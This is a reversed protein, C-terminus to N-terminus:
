QGTIGKHLDPTFNEHLVLNQLLLDPKEISLLYLSNTKRKLAQTQKHKNRQTHRTKFRFGLRLILYYKIASWNQQELQKIFNHIKPHAAFKKDTTIEVPKNQDLIVTIKVQEQKPKLPVWIELYRTHLLIKKDQTYHWNIQNHVALFKIRTKIREDMNEIINCIATDDCGRNIYQEHLLKFDQDNIIEIM